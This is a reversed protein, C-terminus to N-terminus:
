QFGLSTGHEVIEEINVQYTGVKSVAVGAALNALEISEKPTLGAITSLALVTLATDGAGSVDFVEEIQAPSYQFRQEEQHYSVIGKPGLTIITQQTGLIKTLQIIAQNLDGGSECDGTDITRNVMGEAESLNPTMMYVGRFLEANAPKADVFCKLDYDGATGKIGEVLNSTFLGKNYDSLIVGDYNGLEKKIAALIRETTADGIKIKEERDVRVIQRNGAMLRQKITTPRRDNFHVLNIGQKQCLQIIEQGANDNENVLGYLTVENGLRRVNHAVNAAGGLVYSDRSVELLPAGQEEPNLRHIEGWTYHDLMIDGIVLIRKGKLRSARNELNTTNM